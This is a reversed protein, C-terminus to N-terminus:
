YQFLYIEKIEAMRVYVHSFKFLEGEGGGDCVEQGGFLMRECIAMPQSYRAAALQKRDALQRPAATLPSSATPTDM